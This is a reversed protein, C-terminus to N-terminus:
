FLLIFVSNSGATTLKFVFRTDGGTHSIPQTLIYMNFLVRDMLYIRRIMMTAELGLTSEFEPTCLLPCELFDSHYYIYTHTHTHTHICVCMYIYIYIHTYTHSVTPNVDKELIYIYIYLM